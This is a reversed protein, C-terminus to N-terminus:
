SADDAGTIGYTYIESVVEDETKGLGTGITAFTADFVIPQYLTLAYFASQDNNTAMILDHLNSPNINDVNTTTFPSSGHEVGNIWVTLSGSPDGGAYSFAIHVFSTSTASLQTTNWSTWGSDGVVIMYYYDNTQYDSQINWANGSVGKGVSFCVSAEVTQKIWVSFAMATCPNKKGPFDANLDDYDRILYDDSGDFTVSKGTTYGSPLSANSFTPADGLTLTNGEGSSDTGDDSAFLWAGQCNADSTYNTHSPAEGSVPQIVMIIDASSSGWWILGAVILFCIIPIVPWRRM